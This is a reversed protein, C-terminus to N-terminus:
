AAMRSLARKALVGCHHLKTQEGCGPQGIPHIDDGILAVAEDINAESLTKGELFQAATVALAPKDGAAFFALRLDFVRGGDIRGHAALGALAYDGHRRALEDFASRYGLTPVPVEVARLLEGPRLATEFTGTFFDAAEVHRTGDRAEIAIRGGLALVCAPLEAAPDALALSGGITGRNRIAPHGIHLVAEQLLPAMGAITPSAAVDSHRVVAGMRLWGAEVSIERLGPLARIDVVHSPTVLRMNLMPVLSQGGALV